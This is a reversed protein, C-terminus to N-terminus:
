DLAAEIRPELNRFTLQINYDDLRLTWQTIRTKKWKRQFRLMIFAPNKLFLNYKQWHTIAILGLTDDRRHRPKHLSKQEAQEAYDSIKCFTM